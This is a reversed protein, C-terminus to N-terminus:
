EFLGEDPTVPSEEGPPPQRVAKLKLFVDYATEVGAEIFNKASAYNLEDWIVKPQLGWVEFAIKELAYGDPVDSPKIDDAKRKTMAPSAVSAPAVAGKAPAPKQSQALKNAITTIAQDLTRGQKVWETVSTVGLLSHVREESLGMQAVRGWFGTWDPAKRQAPAFLKRLASGVGPLSQCADIEARKASMKLITNGLDTIEPNPIRYKGKRRRTLEERKYGYDEPTEVWRYGYKTEMTSCAGIGVAVVQGTSRSILKAQLLYSLIDEDERFHLITHEPYCNFANSIKSAGPDRLAFSDTGPHIGYDVDEELVEMVLREAMRINHQIVTIAQETLQILEVPKTEVVAVETGPETM